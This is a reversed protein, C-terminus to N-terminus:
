IATRNKGADDDLRTCPLSAVCRRALMGRSIVVSYGCPVNGGRSVGLHQPRNPLKPITQLMATIALHLGIQTVTIGSKAAHKIRLQTIIERKGVRIKIWESCIDDKYNSLLCSRILSTEEVPQMPPNLPPAFPGHEGLHWLREKQM